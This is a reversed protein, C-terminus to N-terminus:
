QLIMILVESDDLENQMTKLKNQQESPLSAFGKNQIIEELRKKSYVVRLQNDEIEAHSLMFPLGDAVPNEMFFLDPPVTTEESFHYLQRSLKDYYSYFFKVSGDRRNNPTDREQTYTFLVYRDAERWTGPLLKESLNGNFFTNVDARYTGFNLVYAPLLRNPSAVRYVTDNLSQRITLQKSHYYVDPSPPSNYNGGGIAPVPQYSPFRCLTDGKLDFTFLFEEPMRVPEYFYGAISKNDLLLATGEFSEFTRTMIRQRQTLDYLCLMYKGDEKVIYLSNNGIVTLGGYFGKLDSMDYMTFNRAAVTEGKFDSAKSEIPYLFKGEKDYCYLGSFADGAIIYEDTFKFLSYLSFELFFMRSRIRNDSRLGFGSRANVIFNGGTESMPHKLKIYRVQTYYDSM